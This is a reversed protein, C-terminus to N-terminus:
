LSKQGVSYDLRAHINCHMFTWKNTLWWTATSFCHSCLTTIVYSGLDEYLHYSENVFGPHTFCEELLPLTSHTAWPYSPNLLQPRHFRHAQACPIIVHIWIEASSCLNYAELAWGAGCQPLVYWPWDRDIVLTCSDSRSYPALKTMCADPFGPHNLPVRPWKRTSPCHLTYCASVLAQLHKGFWGPKGSPPVSEYRSNQGGSISVAICDNRICPHLNTNFAKSSTEPDSVFPQWEKIRSGYSCPTLTKRQRSSYLFSSRM